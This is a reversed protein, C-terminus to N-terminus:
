RGDDGFLTVARTRTKFNILKMYGPVIETNIRSHSVGRFSMVSATQFRHVPINRLTAPDNQRWLLLSLLLFSYGWLVTFRCGNSLAEQAGEAYPVWWQIATLCEEIVKPPTNLWVEVMAKPDSFSPSPKTGSKLLLSFARIIGPWSLAGGAKYVPHLGMREAIAPWPSLEKYNFLHDAVTWSKATSNLGEVYQPVKEHIGGMGPLDEVSDWIIARLETTKGLCMAAFWIRHQGDLVYHVTESVKLLHVETKLQIDRWSNRMKRAHAERVPRNWGNRHGELFKFKTGFDGPHITIVVEHRGKCHIQHEM